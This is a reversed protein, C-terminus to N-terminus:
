KVGKLVSKILEDSVGVQKGVSYASEKIRSKLTELCSMVFNVDLGMTVSWTSWDEATVSTYLRKGNIAMALSDSIEPAYHSVPVCDYLPAAQIVGGSLLVSYNKSHADANGVLVNYVMQSALVNLESEHMGSYRLRDFIGKLGMNYKSGPGIGMVQSLDEMHVRNIGTKPNLCRDFRTTIYTSEDGFDVKRGEAARIGVAKALTQTYAEAAELEILHDAGPKFIHTSPLTTTSEYWEGNIFSLSFKDQVGALSLRSGFRIIPSRRSNKSEYIADEIEDTSVKVFRTTGSNVPNRGPELLSVSGPLDEGIANLLDFISKKDVGRQKSIQSWVSKKDPLLNQLWAGPVDHGVDRGVPLSLSIPEQVGPAYEFYVGTQVKEFRAVVKGDRWAFLETVM